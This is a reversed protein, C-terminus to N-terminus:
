AACRAVEALVADAVDAVSCGDTDVIAHASAEYIPQRVTALRDLVAEEGSAPLLPRFRDHGRVRAALVRPAARLWVVLGTARLRASNHPDLVTGGGCGIVLPESSACVEVVAQREFERFAPEGGDVFIEEVSRGAITAVVDDTDVFLRGLRAACVAGVTSKGAGMLGVLVLHRPQDMAM